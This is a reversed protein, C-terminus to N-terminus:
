PDSHQAAAWQLFAQVEAIKAPDSAEDTRHEQSWGILSRRVEPLNELAWGVAAAKTSPVGTVATHLGRCTTEIVYAQHAIENFWDRDPEPVASAWLAWENLRAAAAARIEDSAIPDILTRPKPGYLASGHERVIWREIVWNSDHREWRFPDHSTRTPHRQGPEFKRAAEADIYTAELGAAYPDPLAGIRDHMERLAEFERESVRTNTVILLDIDSYGPRFDGLALSGRAYM